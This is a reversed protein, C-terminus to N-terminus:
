TVARHLREAVGSFRVVKRAISRRFLEQSGYVFVARRARTMATYLNERTLLPLDQDPLVVAVEDFESGQAKHVTMAFSLAIVGDLAHIHHARWQGDARFVAMTSEVGSNSVRVMLGQDGNYLRRNYDNKLMMVPMGPLLGEGGSVAQSFRRRIADNIADAGTRFRRTVCLIRASAAHKHLADLKEQSETSFDGGDLVFTEPELSESLVHRECWADVFSGILMPDAADDRRLWTVGPMSLDTDSVTRIDDLLSVDGLRVRQATKLVDRGAPDDARMRHSHTLRVVHDSHGDPVLDRLITGTEVSPLQEADGLLVLHAAPNLASLLSEMLVLDVMSAEDVIVFRFPLPNDAGYRFGGASPSYGLLRHLTVPAPNTVSDKIRNAAKGTPAAVAIEDLEVGLNQLARLIAVVISTKGTGPGGTIVALPHTLAHIVADTQEDTLAPEDWGDESPATKMASRAQAIDFQSARAMLALASAVFRTEYTFTRQHYLWPGDVILPRYDNPRGVVTSAKGLAANALEMIDTPNKVLGGLAELAEVGVPVRTSGERLSVLSSLVLLTLGEREADTLNPELSSLEVALTGLDPDVDNAECLGAFIDRSTMDDWHPLQLGQAAGPTM